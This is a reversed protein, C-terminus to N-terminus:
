DSLIIPMLILKLAGSAILFQGDPTEKIKTTATEFKLDQILEVRQMYDLLIFM